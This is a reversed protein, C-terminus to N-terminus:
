HRAFYIKTDPTTIRSTSRELVNLYIGILAFYDEIYDVAYLCGLHTVECNTPVTLGTLTSRTRHLDVTLWTKCTHGTHTRKFFAFLDSNRWKACERDNFVENCIDGKVVLFCKFDRSILM